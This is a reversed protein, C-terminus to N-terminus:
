DDNSLGLMDEIKESLFSRTTEVLIKLPHGRYSDDEELINDIVRILGYVSCLDKKYQIFDDKLSQMKNDFDDFKEKLQNMAELYEGENM